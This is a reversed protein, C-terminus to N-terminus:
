SVVHGEKAQKFTEIKCLLWLRRSTFGAAPAVNAIHLHDLTVNHLKREEYVFAIPPM